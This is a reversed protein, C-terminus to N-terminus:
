VMGDRHFSLTSAEAYIAGGSNVAACNQIRLGSVRLVANVVNLFQTSNAGDAVVGVGAGTINM